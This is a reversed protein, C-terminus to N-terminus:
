LGMTALLLATAAFLTLLVTNLRRQATSDALSEDLSRVAYMARAPEIEALAARVTALSVPRAPNMRVIFFVDPWYGSYGCWYVIPEVDTALGRERVDGVVGIIDLRQRNPAIM